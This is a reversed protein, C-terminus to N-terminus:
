VETLLRLNEQKDKPDKFAKDRDSVRKKSSIASERYGKFFIM